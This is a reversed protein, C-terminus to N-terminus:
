SCGGSRTSCRSRTVPSGACSSVCMAQAPPFSEIPKAKLLGVLIPVVKKLPGQSGLAKVAAVRVSPLRHNTLATLKKVFDEHSATFLPEVAAIIGNEEKASVADDLKKLLEKAKERDVEEVKPDDSGDQAGAKPEDDDDGEGFAPGLGLGLVIFMAAFVRM